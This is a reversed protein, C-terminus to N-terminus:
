RETFPGKRWALTAVSAEATLGVRALGEQVSAYGCDHWAITGGPRVVRKAINAHREVSDADHAADVYVLDYWRDPLWLGLEEITGICVAVKDTVGFAWLNDEFARYTPAPNVPGTHADGAFTDICRVEAAVLAMCVTSRGRWSGLELVRAGQALRQLQEGEVPELWGAIKTWDTSPSM